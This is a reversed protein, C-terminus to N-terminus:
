KFKNSQRKSLWDKTKTCEEGAYCIFNMDYNLGSNNFWYSIKSLATLYELCDDENFNNIVDLLDKPFSDIDNAMLDNRLNDTVEAQM